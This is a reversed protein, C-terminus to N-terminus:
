FTGRMAERFVPLFIAVACVVGIVVALIVLVLVSAAARVWDVRHVTKVALLQLYLSYIALPVTLCAVIPIVSLLSSAVAMPATIASFLYVLQNFNGTGGLRGAVFNVLATYIVMGLVAFIAGLPISCLVLFLLTGARAGAGAERELQDMFQDMEPRFAMQTLAYIASAFLSTIGVWLLGRTPKAAPDDLLIQYSQETPRTLASLWVQSWPLTPGPLAPQASPTTM